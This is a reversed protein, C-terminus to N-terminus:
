KDVQQGSTKKQEDKAHTNGRRTVSAASITMGPRAPFTSPLTEPFDLFLHEGRASHSIHQSGEAGEFRIIASGRATAAAPRSVRSIERRAMKRM